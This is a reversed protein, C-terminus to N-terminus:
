DDEDERPKALRRPIVWVSWLIGAALLAIGTTERYAGQPVAAALWLLVTGATGAARATKAAAFRREDRELPLSEASLALKFGALETLQVGGVFAALAFAVWSVAGHDAALIVLFAAAHWRAWAGFTEGRIFTKGYLYPWARGRNWAMREPIWAAWRRKAPRSDQSPVDVFWSLFRYWRRRAAAEERILREWPLKQQRTMRWVLGLLLLLGATLGAAPLPAGNLLAWVSALTAAYRAARLLMRAGQGITQRERWAGYANWAGVAAFILGLLALSRGSAESETAPARVYLPVFICYVALPRFVGTRVANMFAPRIYSHLVTMEMPLLFVPDAPMLYTRMPSWVAALALAAAGIIGAPLNPPMDRLLNAYGIVAAFLIASAALGFGSQLVYRFYPVVESRFAAARKGRLSLLFRRQEESGDPM